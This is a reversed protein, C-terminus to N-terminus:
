GRPGATLQFYREDVSHRGSATFEDLSGAFLVRRNLVVVDDVTQAMEALLHSSLVVTRGDAALTRLFERLWRMGEPDLGNSPEDLLLLPPDDLLATALALRQRMGTSYDCLKNNEAGHLGVLEIVEASRSAPLGVGIAAIFPHRHATVNPNWGVGDMAVGVFRAPDPLEAYRVGFVSATGSTPTLLGVLGRLSTSKGAGNPGLLGVIRGPLVRFSVDDVAGAFSKCFHDFGVPVDASSGVPARGPTPAGATTM